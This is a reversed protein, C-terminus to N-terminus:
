RGLLAMPNRITNRISSNDQAAVVVTAEEVAEVEAFNGM